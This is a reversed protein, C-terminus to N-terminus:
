EPEPSAAAAKLTEVSAGGEQEGEAGEGEDGEEAAPAAEAPEDESEGMEFTVAPADPPLSPDKISVSDGENLSFHVVKEGNEVLTVVAGTLTLKDGPELRSLIEKVPAPLDDPNLVLSNKIDLSDM